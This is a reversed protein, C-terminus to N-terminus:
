VRRRLRVWAALGACLFVLNALQGSLWPPIKGQQGLGEAFRLLVFYGVLSLAALLYGRARAGAAGAPVLALPVGLWVFVLISLVLGLRRHLALATRHWGDPRPLLAAERWLEPLSKEDDPSRLTNKRLLSDEVSISLSAAEFRLATYDEGVAQQLHAEGRGLGLVIAQEAGEARVRGDQALILLPARPDREDNVLVHRWDGTEPDISEAFLTLGTVEDYFVGPRVNHQVELKLLSDFKERVRVLGHSEPGLVLLLVVAGALAGLVAPALMLRGPSVGASYLADLERDESLQGLGVLVGLLISVPLTAVLYHPTLDWLLELLDWFHVESGLLIDVRRLLQLAIMLQFFLALAALSPLAMVRFFHRDLISRSL